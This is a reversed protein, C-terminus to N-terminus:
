LVDLDLELTIAGNVLDTLALLVMVLDRVVFLEPFGLEHDDVDTTLVVDTVEAEDVGGTDLEVLTALDLKLLAADNVKALDDM